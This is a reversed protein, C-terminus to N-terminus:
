LAYASSPLQANKPRNFTAPTTPEVELALNGTKPKPGRCIVNRLKSGFGIVSDQDCVLGLSPPQDCVQLSSSNPM